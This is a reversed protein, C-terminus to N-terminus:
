HLWPAKWVLAVLAPWCHGVALGRLWLPQGTGARPAAQTCTSRWPPRNPTWARRSACALGVFHRM